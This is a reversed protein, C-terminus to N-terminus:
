VAILVIHGFSLKTRQQCYVDKKFTNNFIIQNQEKISAIWNHKCNHWTQNKLTPVLLANISM